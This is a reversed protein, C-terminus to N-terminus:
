YIKLLGSACFVPKGIVPPLQFFDGVAIVTKGAFPIQTSVDAIECLRLHVDKLLKDSVMSIEDIIVATIESLKNRLSARMKDSLPAYLKVRIGLGSHITTGNINVAAVGTPALM